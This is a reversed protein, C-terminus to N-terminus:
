QENRIREKLMNGTFWRLIVVAAVGMKRSMNNRLQGVNKGMAHNTM